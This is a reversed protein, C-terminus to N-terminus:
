FLKEDSLIKMNESEHKSFCDSACFPTRFFECLERKKLLTAAKNFFFSQCLHKETFKTFNKLVGGTAAETNRFNGHRYCLKGTCDILITKM